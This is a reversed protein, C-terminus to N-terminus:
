GREAAAIGRRCGRELARARRLRELLRPPRPDLGPTGERSSVDLRDGRLHGHVAWSEWRERDPSFDHGHALVPAGDGRLPEDSRLVVQDGSWDEATAVDLRLGRGDDRVLLADRGADRRPALEQVHDIRDLRVVIRAVYWWNERRLLLSDALARTPPYKRLEQNLLEEALAGSCHGVATVRGVAAAGLAGHPLSRSDSVALAVQGAGALSALLPARDYTLAVCPVAGDLLPVASIAVPIGSGDIWAVEASTARKWLPVFEHV